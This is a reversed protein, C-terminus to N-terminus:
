FNKSEVFNGKEKNSRAVQQAKVSMVNIARQFHGRYNMGVNREVLKAIFPILKEDISESVLTPIIILSQM